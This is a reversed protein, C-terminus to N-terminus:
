SPWHSCRFPYKQFLRYWKKEQNPSRVTESAVQSLRGAAKGLFQLLDNQFIFFRIGVPGIRMQLGNFKSLAMSSKWRFIRFAIRAKGIQQGPKKIWFHKFFVVLVFAIRRLTNHAWRGNEKKPKLGLSSARHFQCGPLLMRHLEHVHTLVSSFPLLCTNKLSFPCVRDM